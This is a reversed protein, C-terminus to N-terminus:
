RTGQEPQAASFDGHDGRQHPLGSQRRSTRWCCPRTTILAPRHCGSSSDGSLQQTICDRGPPRSTCASARGRTGNTGRGATIFLSLEVNELASTRPLLNFTQFVFGLQKTEPTRWNTGPEHRRSTATWDTVGLAPNTWAGLIHM